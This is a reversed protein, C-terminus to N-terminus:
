HGILWVNPEFCVFTAMGKKPIKYSAAGLINDGADAYVTVLGAYAYVRFPLSYLAPAVPPLTFDNPTGNAITNTINDPMSYTGNTLIFTEATGGGNNYLWDLAEGVNDGPVDSSNIIERDIGYPYDIPIFALTKVLLRWWDWSSGVFAVQPAPDIIYHTLKAPNVIIKKGTLNDHFFLTDGVVDRRITTNPTLTAQPVDSSNLLQIEKTVLQKIKAVTYQPLAM